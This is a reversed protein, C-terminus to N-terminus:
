AKKMIMGAHQAGASRDGAVDPAHSGREVEYNLQAVASGMNSNGMLGEGSGASDGKRIGGMGQEGAASPKSMGEPLESEVSLPSKMPSGRDRMMEDMPAMENDKSGKAM